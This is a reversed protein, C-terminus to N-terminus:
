FMMQPPPSLTQAPGPADQIRMDSPESRQAPLTQEPGPADQIREPEEGPLSPALDSGLGMQGPGPADQIRPEEQMADQEKQGREVEVNLEEQAKQSEAEQQQWLRGDQERQRKEAEAAVQRPDPQPEVVQELVVRRPHAQPQVTKPMPDEDTFPDTFQDPVTRPASSRMVVQPQAAAPTPQRKCGVSLIVALGAGVALVNTAWTKRIWIRPM